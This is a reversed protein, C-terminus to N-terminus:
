CGSLRNILQMTCANTAVSHLYHRDELGKGNLILRSQCPPIGQREQILLKLDWVTDGYPEMDVKIEM